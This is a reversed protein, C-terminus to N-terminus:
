VYMRAFPVGCLRPEVRSKRWQRNDVAKEQGTEWAREKRKRERERERERKRGREERRVFLVGNRQVGHSAQQVDVSASPLVCRGEKMIIVVVIIPQRGQASWTDVSSLSCFITL